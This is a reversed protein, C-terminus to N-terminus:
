KVGLLSMFDACCHMSFTPSLNPCLNLNICTCAPPHAISLVPSHRGCTVTSVHIVKANIAGGITIVSVVILVILGNQVYKDWFKRTKTEKLPKIKLILHIIDTIAYCFVLYLTFATVFTIKVASFYWLILAIVIAITWPLWKKKKGFYSIFPLDKFHLAIYYAGLLGAGMILLLLPRM